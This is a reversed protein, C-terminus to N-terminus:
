RRNRWDSTPPKVRDSTHAGPMGNL